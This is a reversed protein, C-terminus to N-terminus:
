FNVKLHNTVNCYFLPLFMSYEKKLFLNWFGFFWTPIYIQIKNIPVRSILITCLSYSCFIEVVRASIMFNVDRSIARDVLVVKM